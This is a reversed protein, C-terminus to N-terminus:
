GRVRKPREKPSEAPCYRRWDADWGSKAPTGDQLEMNDNVWTCRLQLDRIAIGIPARTLLSELLLGNAAWSSVAAMGTSSVLWQARGDQGSLPSVRLSVDLRRGDRHRLAALGSWGGRARCRRAFASAKARDEASPLMVAAPRGVVEAASYGGVLVAKGAVQVGHGPVEDIVHGDAPGREASIEEVAGGLRQTLLDGAALLV